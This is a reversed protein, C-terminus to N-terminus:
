LIEIISNKIEDWDINDTMLPMDDKDADDFYTLSKRVMFESGDPYKENYFKIMEDLSFKKGLYYFDIFDKKSGRGAIANLKMAAIDMESALRIGDIISPASILKYNYDVLDVKIGNVSFIQIRKSKKLITTEGFGSLIESFAFDELDCNGFLDIDVSIRHGIQLSLATGGVLVFNDFEKQNM